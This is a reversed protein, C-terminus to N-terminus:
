ITTWGGDVVISAGSIYSSANCALLLATSAVEDASGMRKLPTKKIYQEVFEGMKAWAVINHWETHENGEKKLEHTALSFSAVLHGEKTFRIDPNNGVHGVLIVKNISKKNIM